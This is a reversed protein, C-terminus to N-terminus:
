RIKVRHQNPMTAWDPWLGFYQLGALVLCIAAVAIVMLVRNLSPPRRSWQSMRMLWNLNLM